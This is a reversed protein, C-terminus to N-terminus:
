NIDMIALEISIEFDQTIFQSTGFPLSKCQCCSTNKLVHFSVDEFVTAIIQSSLRPRISYSIFISRQACSFNLVYKDSPRRSGESWLTYQLLKLV